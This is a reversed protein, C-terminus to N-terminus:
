SSSPCKTTRRKRSPRDLAYMTRRVIALSECDEDDNGILYIIDDLISLSDQVANKKM